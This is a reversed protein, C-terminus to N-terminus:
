NFWRQLPSCRASRVSRFFQRAPKVPQKTELNAYGFGESLIMKGNQVFVFVAGPIQEKRMLDPVFGRMFKQLEEAAFATKAPTRKACCDNEDTEASHSIFLFLLLFLILRYRSAM